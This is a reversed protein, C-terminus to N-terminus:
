FATRLGFVFNRGRLPSADKVFSAHNLAFSNTLNTGRAFLEAWRDTGLDLKYSLTLNLMDYGPTETEFDAIRDQRFTRYYEAQASFPGVAGDIRTGLRGPPIRPLNGLDNKLKARVYDGFIAVGLEPIVQHRVEGDVGTFTADAAVYHILRFDEYQDLTQGFIYNDVKQHYAGVTFTTAGSTKRFTLNVSKGTELRNETSAMGEFTRGTVMGIEYTNSAFHPGFAYLEQVNPARQSRALSLALSYGEAVKWLASASVSFPDHSKAPMFTTLATQPRINQWEKRLAAEIRVPGFDRSEHLFLATNDIDFPTYQTQGNEIVSHIGSFTSDSHQVGLVGRFGALPKHTLEFRLDFAKNRYTTAIEDHEIEDHRYTTHAMRFRVREFGPLPDSYDSRVDFRESRLKVFLSEDEHEHGHDHDHDHDHGEEEHGHDDEGHDHSGCHLSPGHTHCDEYEHSHGPLGYKSRVRTYAFGLYGDPGVWSGGASFTSSESWSGPVHKEGFAGPVRYDDTERHAGEVRLALAGTGLTVGGVASREDDGTGLRAEASGSVGREPVATPIKTDLLNVAGGIAGGGYLLASPGRLVEIGRLLLPEGTIAHDASIGSADQVNTSDSLVQVRPSTQGRIVPRSAGGGFNDFHIGPQGSLTEGLTGQRRHALEDGSLTIVPTVTEDATEELPASTVLIERGQPAPAEAFATAPILALLSVASRHALRRAPRHALRVSM